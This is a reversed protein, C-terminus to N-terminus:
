RSLRDRLSKLGEASSVSLVEAEPLIRKVLGSLVKGPGIEVFLRCGSRGMERISEDWRVASTLQRLLSSRIEEPDTLSAADANNILPTRLRALPLAAILPALAEAAPRMLACHSPVSVPLPVLKRVGRTKLEQVARDVAASAGAIVIQGPANFNAPRLVEGRAAAVCAAEVTEADAGLVAVMKGDGPPVADQMAQGRARVIRLADALPLGGAAFIATYEGLSHGALAIPPSPLDGIAAWAAASVALIAPQTNATKNLDEEPGEFCLRSLEFGLVRDAEDFVSRAAANSLFLDRGMGVHQSGQGPFILAYPVPHEPM